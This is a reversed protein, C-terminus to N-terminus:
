SLARPLVFGFRDGRGINIATQQEYRDSREDAANREENELQVLVVPLHRRLKRRSVANDGRASLEPQPM